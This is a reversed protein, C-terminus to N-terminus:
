EDLRAGQAVGGRRVGCVVPRASLVRPAGALHAEPGGRARRPTVGEDPDVLRWLARIGIVVRVEGVPSAICATKDRM